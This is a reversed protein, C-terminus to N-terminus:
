FNLLFLSYLFKKFIETLKIKVEDENLSDLQAEHDALFLEKHM